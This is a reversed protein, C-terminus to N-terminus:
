EEHADHHQFHEQTQLDHLQSGRISTLSALELAGIGRVAIERHFVVFKHTQVADLLM